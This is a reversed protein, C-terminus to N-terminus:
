NVYTGTLFDSDKAFPLNAVSLNKVNNQLLDYIKNYICLCFSLWVFGKQRAHKVINVKVDGPSMGTFLLIKEESTSKDCVLLM